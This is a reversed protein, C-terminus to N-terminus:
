ARSVFQTRPNLGLIQNLLIFSIINLPIKSVLFFFIFGYFAFSESETAVKIYCLVCLDGFFSMGILNKRNEIATVNKKTDSLCWLSIHITFINYDNQAVYKGLPPPRSGM